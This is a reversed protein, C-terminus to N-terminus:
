AFAFGARWAEVGASAPGRGFVLGAAPLSCLWSSVCSSRYWLHSMEVARRAGAARVLEALTATRPSWCLYWALEGCSIPRRILLHRGPGAGAIAWDYLREGKSGPGCSVRQWGRAPVRAALAGARIVRGAGARVRHDCAVAVVYAIMNEELWQRLKGNDGYAEGATFWAFPLGAEVARGIMKQALQPRTAFAVDQGIGAAACRERHASWSQPLYLERDILVRAGSTPVAYALFV